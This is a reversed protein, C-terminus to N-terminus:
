LTYLKSMKLASETSQTQVSDDSTTQNTSTETEDNKRIMLFWILLIGIILILNKSM